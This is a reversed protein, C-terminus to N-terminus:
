LALGQSGVRSAINICVLILIPSSATPVGDLADTEVAGVAVINYRAAVIGLYVYPVLLGRLQDVNELAMVIYDVVYHTM